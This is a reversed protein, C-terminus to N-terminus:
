NLCSLHLQKEIEFIFVSKQPPRPHQPHHSTASVSLTDGKLLCPIERKGRRAWPVLSCINGLAWPVKVFASPLVSCGRPLSRHHSAAARRSLPLLEKGWLLLIYLYVAKGSCLCPPGMGPSRCASGWKEELICIIINTLPQQRSIRKQFRWTAESYNFTSSCNGTKLSSGRPRHQLGAARKVMGLM